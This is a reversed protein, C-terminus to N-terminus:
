PLHVHIGVSAIPELSVSIGIGTSSSESSSSSEGGGSSSGSGSTTGGSGGQQGSEGGGLSVKVGIGVSGGGSQSTSGTSSSEVGVSPSSSAADGVSGAGAGGGTATQTVTTTSTQVRVERTQLSGAPSQGSPQAGGASSGSGASAQTSSGSPVSTQKPSAISAVLIRHDGRVRHRGAGSDAGGAGSGADSGTGAGTVAALNTPSSSRAGVAPRASGGAHRHSDSQAVVAGTIAVGATLAAVAGKVALGTIGAAGGAGLEAMREGSPGSEAARNLAWALLPPPTLASIGRRASGLLGRVASDAIGLADEAVKNGDARHVVIGDRERRPAMASLASRLALVEDPTPAGHGAAGRGYTEAESVATKLDGAPAASAASAAAAGRMQETAIRQAIGYLWSRPDQPEAGAQIGSWAEALSRQLVEQASEQSLCLQRCHRLLARRYRRALAEFAIQSGERALESLREDSQSGLLRTKLATAMIFDRRQRRREEADAASV